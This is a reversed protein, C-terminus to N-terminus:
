DQVESLTLLHCYSSCMQQVCFIFKAHECLDLQHNLMKKDRKLVIDSRLHQQM